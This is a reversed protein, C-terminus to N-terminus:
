FTWNERHSRKGLQQCQELVHGDQICYLCFFPTQNTLLCKMKSLLHKVNMALLFM